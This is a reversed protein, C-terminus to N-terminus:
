MNPVMLGPKKAKDKSSMMSGNVKTAVEMSTPTSESVALRILKSSESM